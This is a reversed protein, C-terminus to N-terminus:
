IENEFLFVERVLSLGRLACLAYSALHECLLVFSGIFFVFDDLACFILTRFVFQQRGLASWNNFVKFFDFNHDLKNRISLKFSSINNSIEVTKISLM